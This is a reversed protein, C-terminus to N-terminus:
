KEDERKWSVISDFIDVGEINTPLGEKEPGIQVNSCCNEECSTSVVCQRWRPPSVTLVLWRPSSIVPNFIERPGANLTIYNLKEEMISFSFDYNRMMMQSQNLDTM